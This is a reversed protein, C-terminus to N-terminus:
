MAQLMAPAGEVECGDDPTLHDHPANAQPAGDRCRQELVEKLRARCAACDVADEEILITRRSKQLAAVGTTGSGAFMDLITDGPNTIADILNDLDSVSQQYEHSTKEQGTGDIVGKLSTIFDGDAGSTQYVLIYKCDASLKSSGINGFHQKHRLTILARYHLHRGLQEMVEQLHIRGAYFAAFGGPKLVRASLSAATGYLGLHEGHYLPDTIVADISHDALGSAEEMRSQIVQADDSSLLISACAAERAERALEHHAAAVTLHERRGPKVVTQMSALKEVIAIRETASAVSRLDKGIQKPLQHTDLAHLLPAGLDKALTLMEAITSKKTCSERAIHAVFAPLVTTDRSQGRKGKGMRTEPYCNEYLTKLEQLKLCRIAWSDDRTLFDAELISRRVHEDPTNEDYVHAQITPLDKRLAAHLRHLGDHVVYHRDGLKKLIIPRLQSIDTLSDALHAVHQFDIRRQSPQRFIIASTIVTELTPHRIHTLTM